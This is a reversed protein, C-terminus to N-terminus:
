MLALCSCRVCAAIAVEALDLEELMGNFDPAAAELLAASRQIATAQATYMQVMHRYMAVHRKSRSTQTDHRGSRHLPTTAADCLPLPSLAAACINAAHLATDGCRQVYGNFYCV